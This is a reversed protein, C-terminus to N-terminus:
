GMLGPMFLECPSAALDSNTLGHCSPQYGVLVLFFFFFVLFVMTMMMMLRGMSVSGVLCGPALSLALRLQYRNKERPNAAFWSQPGRWLRYEWPITFLSAVAAPDQRGCPRASSIRCSSIPYSKRSAELVVGAAEFKFRYFLTSELVNCGSILYTRILPTRTASSSYTHASRCVYYQCLTASSAHCLLANIPM